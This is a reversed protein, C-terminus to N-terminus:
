QILNESINEYFKKILKETNEEIKKSNRDHLIM